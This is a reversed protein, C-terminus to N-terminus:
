LLQHPARQWRIRDTILLRRCFTPAVRFSGALQSTLGPLAAPPLLVALGNRLPELGVDAQLCLAIGASARRVALANWVIM